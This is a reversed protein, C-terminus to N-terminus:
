NEVSRPAYSRARAERARGERVARACPGRAALYSYTGAMEVSMLYSSLM